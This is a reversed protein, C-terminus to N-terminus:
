RNVDKARFNVSFPLESYVQRPTPLSPARFVPREWQTDMVRVLRIAESDRQAPAPELRFFHFPLQM